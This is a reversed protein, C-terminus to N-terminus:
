DFKYCCVHVTLCRKDHHSRRKPARTYSSDSDSDRDQGSSSSSSVSRRRKKSKVPPSRRSTTTQTSSVTSERLAPSAAPTVSVSPTRETTPPSHYPHNAFHDNPENLYQPSGQQSPHSSSRQVFISQFQINPIHDTPSIPTSLHTPQSHPIPTPCTSYSNVTQRLSSIEEKLDLVQKELEAQRQSQRLEQEKEWAIRREREAEQAERTASVIRLLEQVAQLGGPSPRARIM